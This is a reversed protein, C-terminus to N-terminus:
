GHRHMIASNNFHVQFLQPTLQAQIEFISVTDPSSFISCVNITKFKYPSQSLIALKNFYNLDPATSTCEYGEQKIKWRIRYDSTTLGECNDCKVDVEFEAFEDCDISCTRLAENEVLEIEPAGPSIAELTHSICSNSRNPISDSCCYEMGIEEGETYGHDTPSDVDVSSGQVTSLM